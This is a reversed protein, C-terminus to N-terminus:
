PQRTSGFHIQRKVMGRGEVFWFMLKRETPKAAAGYQLTVETRVSDSQPFNALALPESETRIEATAPILSQTAGFSGQWTWSDGVVLPFKLIPIPKTFTEDGYAVLEFSGPSLRYTESEIVVDQSSFSHRILGNQASTAVQVPFTHGNMVIRCDEYPVTDPKLSDAHYRAAKVGVTISWGSDAKREVCGTLSAAILVILAIRFKM